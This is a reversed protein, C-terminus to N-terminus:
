LAVAGIAFLFSFPTTPNTMTREKVEVDKTHHCLVNHISVEKGEALWKTM